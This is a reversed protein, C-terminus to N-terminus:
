MNSNRRIIKEIFERVAGNGGKYTCIFDAIVQVEKVADSPCGIIGNEKKIKQMAPLDNLDDGIYAINCFKYAINDASSKERLIIEIQSLKDQVGQCLTNIGLEEARNSVIKSTRGTIIIPIINNEKLITHIGYGDKIDFAKFVEGDNGMYVKGDTLTGDVDMILFRIDNM